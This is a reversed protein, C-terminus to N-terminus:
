GSMGAKSLRSLEFAAVEYEKGFELDRVWAMPLDQTENSLTDAVDYSDAKPHPESYLRLVLVESSNHRCKQGIEPRWDMDM